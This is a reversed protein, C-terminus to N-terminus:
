VATGDTLCVSQQVSWAAFDAKCLWDDRLHRRIADIMPKPSDVGLSEHERPRPHRTVPPETDSTAIRGHEMEHAFSVGAQADLIALRDLYGGAVEHDQRTARRM